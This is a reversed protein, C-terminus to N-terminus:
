DKCAFCLLTLTVSSENPDFCVVDVCCVIYEDEVLIKIAIKAATLTDNKVLASQMRLDNVQQKRAVMNVDDFLNTEAYFPNHLMEDADEIITDIGWIDEFGTDQVLTLMGRARRLLCGYRTRAQRDLQGRERWYM